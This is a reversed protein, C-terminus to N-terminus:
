SVVKAVDEVFEARVVRLPALSRYQDESEGDYPSPDHEIPGTPEVTLVKPKGRGKSNIAYWEALDWDDTCYAYATGGERGGARPTHGTFDAPFVFGGAKFGARTGHYLTM